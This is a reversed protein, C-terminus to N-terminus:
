KPSRKPNKPTHAKRVWFSLSHVMYLARSEAAWGDGLLGTVKRGWKVTPKGNDLAKISEKM